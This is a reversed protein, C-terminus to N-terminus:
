HRGGLTKPLGFCLSTWKSHPSHIFRRTPMSWSLPFYLCPAKDSPELAEKKLQAGALMATSETVQM